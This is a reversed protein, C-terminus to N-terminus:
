SIKIETKDFAEFGDQSFWAHHEQVLTVLLDCSGKIEPAKCYIELTEKGGNLIPFHFPTRIGNSEICTGSEYWNYSINIPNKNLSNLSYSSM